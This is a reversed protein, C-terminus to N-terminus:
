AAPKRDIVFGDHIHDLYGAQNMAVNSALGNFLADYDEERSAALICGTAFANGCQASPVILERLCHLLRSRLEGVAADRRALHRQRM